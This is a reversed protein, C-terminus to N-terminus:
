IAKFGNFHNGKLTEVPKTRVKNYFSGNKTPIVLIEDNRISIPYGITTMPVSQTPYAVMMPIGQVGNIITM